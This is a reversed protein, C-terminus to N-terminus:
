LRSGDKCRGDKGENAKERISWSLDEKEARGCIDRTWSRSISRKSTIPARPSAAGSANEPIGHGGAEVRRRVRAASEEVSGLRLYVLSIEYSLARWQPIKRAYMLSALTTEIVLNAGADVLEDIRALMVRGARVDLAGRKGERPSLSRAIEDANVFEFGTEEASLYEGAFTTKGAGNPGAIIILRPV